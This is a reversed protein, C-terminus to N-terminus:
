LIDYKSAYFVMYEDDIKERENDGMKEINYSNIKIKMGPKIPKDESIHINNAYFYKKEGIQKSKVTYVKEKHSQFQDTIDKWNSHGPLLDLNNNLIDNEYFWVIFEMLINLAATGLRSSDQSGHVGENTVKCFYELAKCLYNNMFRKYIVYTKKTEKKDYFSGTELLSPIAGPNIDPVLRKSIFVQLLKHCVNRFSGCPGSVNDVDDINCGTQIYRLVAKSVGIEPYKKDLADAAEFVAKYKNRIKAQPANSSDLDDRIKEVLRIIESKDTINFVRHGILFYDEKKRGRIEIDHGDAIVYVHINRRRIDSFDEIINYYEESHYDVVIGDVLDRKTDLIYDEYFDSYEIENALIRIGGSVSLANEVEYEKSMMSINYELGSGTRQREKVIADEVIQLQINKDQEIAVKKYLIDRPMFRGGNDSIEEVYNQMEKSFLIYSLYELTVPSNEKLQLAFVDDGPFCAENSKQLNLCVGKNYSIFIHPGKYVGLDLLVNDDEADQKYSYRDINSILSLISRSFDKNTLCKYAEKNADVSSRVIMLDKLSVIKYDTPVDKPATYIDHNLIYDCSCIQDYSVIISSDNKVFEIQKCPEDFRLVLLFTAGDVDRFSNKNFEIVKEICEIEFLKKREFYLETIHSSCFERNVWIVARKLTDRKDLIHEINRIQSLNSQYRTKIISKQNCIESFLVLTDINSDIQEQDFLLVVNTFGCIEKIMHSLIYERVSKVRIFYRKQISLYKLYKLPTESDMLITTSDNLADSLKIIFDRQPSIITEENDREIESWIYELLESSLEDKKRFACLRMFEIISDTIEPVALDYLYREWTPTHENPAIIQSDGRIVAILSYLISWLTKETRMPFCKDILDELFYPFNMNYQKYPTTSDHISSLYLAYPHGENLAKIFHNECKNHRSESQYYKALKISSEASPNDEYIRVADHLNKHLVFNLEARLLSNPETYLPLIRFPIQRNTIENQDYMNLIGYADEDYSQVEKLYKLGRVEDKDVGLGYIYALGLNYNAIKYGKQYVKKWIRVAEYPNAPLSIGRLHIQALQLLSLVDGCNYLGRIHENENIDVNASIRSKGSYTRALAHSSRPHGNKTAMKYWKYANISNQEVGKGCSYMVGLEFQAQPNGKESALHYWHAAETYDQTVGKGMSYLTGINYQAHSNGQDAALKYMRMAEEYNQVVGDGNEYMTALNYQAWENGQEAALEYYRLAKEYDQEVGDGTDYHTGINFLAMDDGHEAALKYYRFAEASDQPVGKGSDYMVGLNSLASAYGQEAAAKYWKIAEEYNQEVGNGYFCSVGLNYQAMMHGQEAASKFWKAAEKYNQRLGKGNVYMEGLQYQAKAFGAEAALQFWKAAEIYNQVVHEGSYYLRALNDQALVHGQEASAIYWRIAETIDCPGSIGEAYMVGLSYQAPAYGEEAAAKYWKIAEDYNQEVGDGFYYASGLYYQAPPCDQKAALQFWYFARTHNQPTGLGKSHMLGLRFQAWDDGQDAAMQFLKFAEIYDQPTTEAGNYYSIALEYLEQPTM